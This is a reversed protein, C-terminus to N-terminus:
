PQPTLLVHTGRLREADAAAAAAQWAGADAVAREFLAALTDRTTAVRVKYSKWSHTEVLVGIRGRAAAYEHSYRPPYTDRDFGSPPDDRKRFDPYFDLPLPRMATPRPLVDRQRAAGRPA